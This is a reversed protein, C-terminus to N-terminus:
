TLKEGCGPCYNRISEDKNDYAQFETGCKKCQTPYGWYEDKDLVIYSDTEIKEPDKYIEVQEPYFWEKKEPDWEPPYKGEVCPLRQALRQAYELPGCKNMLDMDDM